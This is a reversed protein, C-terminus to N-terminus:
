MKIAILKEEVKNEQFKRSSNTQLQNSKQKNRSNLADVTTTQM